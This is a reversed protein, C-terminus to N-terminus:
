DVRKLYVRFSINRFYGLIRWTCSLCLDKGNLLCDILLILKPQITNVSFPLLLYMKLFLPNWFAHTGCETCFSFLLLQSPSATAKNIIFSHKNRKEAKQKRKPQATKVTKKRTNIAQDGAARKAQVQSSSFHCYYFCIKHLSILHELIALPHAPPPQPSPHRCLSTARHSTDYFLFQLCSCSHFSQALSVPHSHNATLM